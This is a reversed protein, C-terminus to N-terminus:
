IVEEFDLSTKWLQGSVAKFSPSKKWYYYGSFIFKGDIASSDTEDYIMWIPERIGHTNFLYNLLDFEERNIYDIDGSVRKVSNYTTIFKQNYENVTVKTNDENIFEFGAISLTNTSFGYQEGLFINSLEAYDGNGVLVIKWYRFSANSFKVFGFNYKDSLAITYETSTTFNSSASGFLRISSFGFGGTSSGVVAFMNKTTSTKTDVLIEVNDGVSRFVKTTFPHLLNTLPFQANETGSILSYVTESNVALNNSGFTLYSM